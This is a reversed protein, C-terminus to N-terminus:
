TEGLQNYYGRIFERTGFWFYCVEGFAKVIMGAASCDLVYICPNGLWLELEFVSLPIYQTFNQLFYLLFVESLACLLHAKEKGFEFVPITQICICFMHIYEADHELILQLFAVRLLDKCYIEWVYGGGSLINIM